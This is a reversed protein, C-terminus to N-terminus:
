KSLHRLAIELGTHWYNWDHGGNRVLLEHSLGKKNMTESLKMNSNYTFDKNGFDIIWDVTKAAEIQEPTANEIFKIPNMKDVVIQSWDTGHPIVAPISEIYASAAYVTSFMEPHDLGYRLAGGGGMSLGGISRHRKDSTVRYRNEVHPILEEFFHREAMWGDMDFWMANNRYHGDPCVIIMPEADGENILRDAIEKLDGGTVWDTYSANYGGGHLLYLIPYSKMPNDDYGDPLYIAYNRESVGNLLTTPLSEYEIRGAHIIISASFLILATTLIRITNM